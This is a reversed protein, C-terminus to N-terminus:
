VYNTKVSAFIKASLAFLGYSSFVDDVINAEVNKDLVVFELFRAETFVARTIHSSHPMCTVSISPSLVTFNPTM